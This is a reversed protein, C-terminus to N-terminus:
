TTVIDYSDLTINKISTFTGNIKDHAIGNYTGM